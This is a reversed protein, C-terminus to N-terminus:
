IRQYCSNMTTYLGYWTMYVETLTCIRPIVEQSTAATAPPSRAPLSQHNVEGAEEEDEESKGITAAKEITVDLDKAGFVMDPPLLEPTSSLSADALATPLDIEVKVLPTPPTIEVVIVPSTPPTIERGELSKVANLM